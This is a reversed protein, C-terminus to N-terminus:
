DEAGNDNGCSVEDALLKELLAETEAIRQVTTEACRLPEEFRYRPRYPAPDAPFLAMISGMNTIFEQVWDVWGPAKPHPRTDSLDMPEASQGHTRSQARTMQDSVKRFEPSTGTAPVVTTPEPTMVFGEKTDISIGFIKRTLDQAHLHDESKESQLLTLITAMEPATRFEESVDLLNQFAHFRVEEKPSGLDQDWKQLPQRSPTVFTDPEPTM